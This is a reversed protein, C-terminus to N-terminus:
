YLGCDRLREYGQRCNWLIRLYKVTEKGIEDSEVHFWQIVEYECMVYKLIKITGICREREQGYISQM